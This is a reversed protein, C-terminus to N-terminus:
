HWTVQSTRKGIPGFNAFAVKKEIIDLSVLHKAFNGKNEKKFKNLYISEEDSLSLGRIFDKFSQNYKDCSKPDILIEKPNSRTEVWRFCIEM